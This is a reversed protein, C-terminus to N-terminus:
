RIIMKKVGPPIASNPRTTAQLIFVRGAENDSDHALIDDTATQNYVTNEKAPISCGENLGTNFLTMFYPPAKNLIASNEWLERNSRPFFLM